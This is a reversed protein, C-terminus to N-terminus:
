SAILKALVKIFLFLIVLSVLFGVIPRRLHFIVKHRYMLLSLVHGKWVCAVLDSEKLLWVSRSWYESSLSMQKIRLM